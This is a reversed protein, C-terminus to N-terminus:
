RAGDRRGNPHQAIDQAFTQSRDTEDRRANSCAEAPQDCGVRSPEHPSVLRAPGAREWRRRESARHEAREALAFYGEAMRLMVSRAVPDTTRAAFSRMQEGRRRCHDANDVIDTWEHEL